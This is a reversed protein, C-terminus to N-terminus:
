PQLNLAYIVAFQASFSYQLSELESCNVRYAGSSHHHQTSRNPQHVAYKDGVTEGSNCVMQDSERDGRLRKDPRTFVKQKKPGERTRQLNEDM